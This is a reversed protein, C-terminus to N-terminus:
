KMKQCYIAFKELIYPDVGKAYLLGNKYEATAIVRFMKIFYLKNKKKVIM